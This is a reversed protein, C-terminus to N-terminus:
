AGAGNITVGDATVAGDETGWKKMIADYTGNAILVKLASQIAKALESGKAVAIGYPAENFVKGSQVFAGNSQAVIYGVVPSDAYGVDARGSSVALNAGNQDSFSLVTVAPKGAKTCDESAAKSEDEEVTGAEVSVKHGCLSSADTFSAKSGAKVYFAEGANFYNVFDVTQEREKTDTFSSLGVDYKKAALGPIIADFTVNQMKAKLGLTQAIATGLDADMGVITSSGPALFEDPPYSADLAYSLEGSSAIDAPVLAASAADKSQAAIKTTPISQKQETTSSSSSSSSSCAAAFLLVALAASAAARSSRRTSIRTM